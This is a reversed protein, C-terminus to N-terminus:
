WNRKFVVRWSFHEAGTRFCKGDNILQRCRELSAGQECCNCYGSSHLDEVPPLFYCPMDRTFGSVCGGGQGSAVCLSGGGGGGYEYKTEGPGWDPSDVNGTVQYQVEPPSYKDYIWVGGIQNGGADIVTVRIQLNGYGCGQGDEGPGVLRATWTWRPTPPQTPAPTNTPPRPSPTKTPKPTNTPPLPTDSPQPLPTDTATPEPLPTDTATPEPLPTDTATPEPLPTDTPLPTSTPLPTDTPLPTNTPLYAVIRPSAVGLADALAALARTEGEDRGEAIYRDFLASVSQQTNPLELGALRAQASELDRDAYYAAAVLQIYEDKYEPALDAISTDIYEVPMIVWGFLLGLAAGAILGLIVLVALMLGTRNRRAQSM